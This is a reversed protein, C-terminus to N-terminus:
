EYLAIGSQGGIVAKEALETLGSTRYNCVKLLMPLNLGSIIIANPQEKKIQTAVNFPTSGVLDTLILLGTQTNMNTVLERASAQIKEISSTMPVELSAINEIPAGLINQATAFLHQAINEHSVLLLAVSM